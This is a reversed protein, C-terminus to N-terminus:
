SLNKLLALLMLVGLYDRLSIRLSGLVSSMDRAVRAKSIGMAEAIEEYTLGDMRNKLFVEAKEDSVKDLTKRVISLIDEVFLESLDTSEITETYFDMLEKEQSLLDVSVEKDNRVLRRYDICSNRVTRFMYGLVGEPLVADRKEWLKAFCDSVIDRAQEHSGTFSYAIVEFIGRNEKFLDEYIRESLSENKRM